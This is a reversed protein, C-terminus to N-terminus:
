SVSPRKSPKRNSRRSVNPRGSRRTKDRLVHEFRSVNSSRDNKSEKKWPSNPNSGLTPKVKPKTENSGNSVFFGLALGKLIDIFFFGIPTGINYNENVYFGSQFIFGIIGVVGVVASVDWYLSDKAHVSPLLAFILLRFVFMTIATAIIHELM